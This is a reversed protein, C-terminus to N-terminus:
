LNNTRILYIILPAEYNATSTRPCISAQSYYSYESFIELTWTAARKIAINDRNMNHLNITSDNIISQSHSLNSSFFQNIIDLSTAAASNTLSSTRTSVNIAIDTM